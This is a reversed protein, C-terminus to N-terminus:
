EKVESLLHGYDLKGNNLRPLQDLYRIDISTHHIAYQNKLQQRIQQVAESSFSGEVTIILKEDVGTCAVPMQLLSEVFRELDDLNMRLGYLKIFRKMRGIIWFYGDEDVRAFDGTQLRGQQLDGSALDAKMEAYGLMVNSGEYILEETIPDIELSGGPIAVGISGQKNALQDPPVYSIRASAETQGYMVFFPIKWQEATQNFYEILPVSLRGGAQTFYRLSPLEMNQFRLRFLMQYMYPVGAFSTAKHHKFFAWFNSSLVSEDTLLITSGQLLHSNIVSLGYSYAPSLTTIPRDDATINLYQAISVANSQVNDYSLRVLKPNGTSGSTSLLVALEPYYTIADTCDYVHLQDEFIWDPKYADIFQQKLSDSLKSDLLLVADKKYLAGLYAVISSISNRMYIIGLSKRASHKLLQNAFSRIDEYLQAYTLVQQDELQIFAPTNTREFEWFM